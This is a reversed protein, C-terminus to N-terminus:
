TYYLVLWKEALGHQGHFNGNDTTFIILTNDIVGQEKMVEMINGIATDVETAMRYTNKMHHQYKEPTNYRKCFRGRGFNQGTFFSPMKKWHEETYTKPLPVPKDAYLHMSSNMPRYQEQSGDEAHTAFFSITLFFPKEKPRDNLFEIGDEENWQTIHKRIGKRGHYHNEQYHRRHSFTPIRDPWKFHHYKGYFGVHYDQKMMQPYLTDHWKEGEYMNVERYSWLTRHRASYQGTYLTARSQMCISTTVCNHTFLVGEKALKDIVPTKVYKNGMAGLTEFNWDDAYFLVVNLPKNLLEEAREEAVREETFAAAEAIEEELLLEQDFAPQEEYFGMGLEEERRHGSASSTSSSSSAADGGFSISDYSKQIHNLTPSVQVISVLAVGVFLLLLLVPLPKSHAKAQQQTETM